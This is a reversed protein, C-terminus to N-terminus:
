QVYINYVTVSCVQVPPARSYYGNDGRQLPPQGNVTHIVPQQQGYGHQM